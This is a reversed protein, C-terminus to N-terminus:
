RGCSDPCPYSITRVSWRAGASARHARSCRWRASTRGSGAPLASLVIIISSSNCGKSILLYPTCPVISSIPPQEFPAGGIAHTPSTPQNNRTRTTTASVIAPTRLSPTTMARFWYVRNMTLAFCTMTVIVVSILWGVQVIWLFNTVKRGFHCLCHLIMLMVMRLFFWVNQRTGWFSWFCVYICVM